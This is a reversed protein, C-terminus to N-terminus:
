SRFGKMLGKVGLQVYTDWKVSIDIRNYCIIQDM